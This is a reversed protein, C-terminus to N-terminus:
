PRKGKKHAKLYKLAAARVKSYPIAKEWTDREAKHAAILDASQRYVRCWARLSRREIGHLRKTTVTGVSSAVYQLWDLYPCRDWLHRGTVMRRSAWQKADKCADIAELLEMVQKHTM